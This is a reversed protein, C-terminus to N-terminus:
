LAVVTLQSYRGLSNGILADLVAEAYRTVIRKGDTICDIAIWILHIPRSSHVSGRRVRGVPKRAREPRPM